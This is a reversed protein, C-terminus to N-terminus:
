RPARSRFLRDLEIRLGSLSRDITKVDILTVPGCASFTHMGKWGAAPSAPLELNPGAAAEFHNPTIESIWLPTIAGGYTNSCDQTPLMIRDGLLLPTGGPRSSRPDRRVPNGPHPRWPGCLREAEAVHLEGQKSARDNASAYFLWWRGEHRFISADVPVTDLVIECEPRWDEYNGYARYLTLTGSRHAEPMMWTAGEADFVFPYSLHWPEALAPSREVLDLRSDFTLREIVGHRTRYDYQEVFVHLVGRDWLGFPDALFTYAPEAAFWRVPVDRLGKELLHSAPAEVIACQWLDKRRPM